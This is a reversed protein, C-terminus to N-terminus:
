HNTVCMVPMLWEGINQVCQHEKLCAQRM